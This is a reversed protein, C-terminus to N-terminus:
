LLSKVCFEIAILDVLWWWDLRYERLLLDVFQMRMDEIM